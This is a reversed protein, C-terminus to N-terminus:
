REMRKLMEERLLAIYNQEKASRISKKNYHSYTELLEINEMQFPSKMEKEQIEKWANEQVKSFLNKADEFRKEKTM